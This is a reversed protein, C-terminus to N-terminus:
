RLRWSSSPLPPIWCMLHCLMFLSSVQESSFVKKAVCLPIMSSFDLAGSVGDNDEVLMEDAASAGAAVELSSGQETPESM